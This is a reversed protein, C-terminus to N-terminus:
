TSWTRLCRIRVCGARQGSSRAGATVAPHARVRQARVRDVYVAYADKLTDIEWASESSVEIGLRKDIQFILELLKISEVGLDYLLHTDPTLVTEPVGLTESVFQRFQEYSLVPEEAM